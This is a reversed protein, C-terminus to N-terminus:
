FTHYNISSEDLSFDNKLVIIRNDFHTFYWKRNKYYEIITKKKFEIEKPDEKINKVNMRLYENYWMEFFQVQDFYEMVRFIKKFEDRTEWPFWYLIHTSIKINPFEIKLEKALRLLAEIDYYRNMKKLMIDSTHEIAVFLETARWSKIIEKVEEKKDLLIKPYIPWMSFTFDPNTEILQSLLDLFDIKENFDYGYSWLDDWIFRFHDVGESLRKKLEFKILGIPKSKLKKTIKHNCYFCNWLCGHGITIWGKKPDFDNEFNVTSDEVVESFQPLYPSNFIRNFDNLNDNDIFNINPIEKKMISVEKELHSFCGYCIIKTQPLSNSYKKILEITKKKFKGAVVCSIIIIYNANKSDPIIEYEKSTKFFWHLKRQQFLFLYCCRNKTVDNNIYIYQKKKM